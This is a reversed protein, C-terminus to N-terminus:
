LARACTASIVEHRKFKTLLESEEFVKPEMPVRIKAQTKM